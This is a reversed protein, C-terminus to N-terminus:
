SLIISSQDAPTLLTPSALSSAATTFEWSFDEGQEVGDLSEISSKITILYRTSGTLASAPAISFSKYSASPTALTVTTNTTLNLLLVASVIVTEANLPRDYTVLITPTLSVETALRGPSIGVIQPAASYYNSPM